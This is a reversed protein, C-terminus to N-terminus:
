SLLCFNELIGLVRYTRGHDATVDYVSFILYNRRRIYPHADNNYDKTNIKLIESKISRNTTIEGSCGEFVVNNFDGRTPNTLVLVFLAIAIGICVSRIIGSGAHQQFIFERILNKAISVIILVMGFISFCLIEKKKM